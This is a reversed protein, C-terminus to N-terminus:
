SGDGRTVGNSRMARIILESSLAVMMEEKPSLTVVGALIGVMLHLAGALEHHMGIVHHAFAANRRTEEGTLQNSGTFDAVLTSDDPDGAFIRGDKLEWPLATVGEVRSLAAMIEETSRKHKDM